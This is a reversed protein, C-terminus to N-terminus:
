FSSLACGSLGPLSVDSLFWIRVKASLVWYLLLYRKFSPSSLSSFINDNKQEEEQLHGFNPKFHEPALLAGKGSVVSQFYKSWLCFLYHNFLCDNSQWLCCTSAIESTESWTASGMKALSFASFLLQTAVQWAPESTESPSEGISNHCCNKKERERTLLSILARMAKLFHQWNLPVAIGDFRRSCEPIWGCHLPSAASFCRFQNRHCSWVKIVKSPTTLPWISLQLKQRKFLILM